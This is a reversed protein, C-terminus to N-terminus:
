PERFFLLAAGAVALIAGGIARATIPEKHIIRVCPIIFIPGLSCLTQAIGLPARDAAVLSMWVGLFPGVVAGCATFLLGSRLLGRKDASQIRTNAPWRMRRFCFVALPITALGAFMMRVLTAAQPSMRQSEELWGHGMGQKSFLLGAAQCIAGVIALLIGRTWRSPQLHSQAPQRQSVVWGVGGITMAMGALATLGLTEGLALWGFVAAFLPSLTMILMTLRPGIDIFATLLAQDGIALGVVGSLALLLVQEGVAEPMWHGTLLRHTTGLLLVAMWIRVINVVTPGLRKGAATFFLSTATWLVSTGVGAASGSYIALSELM